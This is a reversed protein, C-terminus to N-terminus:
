RKTVSLITHWRCAVDDLFHELVHRTVQRRGKVRDGCVLCRYEDKDASGVMEFLGLELLLAPERWFKDRFRRVTTPSVGLARGIRPMSWREILAWLIFRQEEANLWAHRDEPSRAPPGDEFREDLTKKPM